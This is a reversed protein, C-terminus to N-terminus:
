SGFEWEVADNTEELKVAKQGEYEGVKTGRGGGGRNGRRGRRGEVGGGERDRDM